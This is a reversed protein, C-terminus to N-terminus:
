ARELDPEVNDGGDDNLDTSQSIVWTQRRGAMKGIEEHRAAM